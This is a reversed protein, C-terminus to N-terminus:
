IASRALCSDLKRILSPTLQYAQCVLENVEIEVQERQNSDLSPDLLEQALQSLQPIFSLFNNTVPFTQLDRNVIKPFLKRQSKRGRFALVFSALPSHLIALLALLSAESTDENPLIHLVSKNYLYVENTFTGVLVHPTPRTIERLLIRPGSFRSLKQPEALWKGHRLYSGSWTLSYRGVDKGQLYPYYEESLKESSHFTHQKVDEKSQPPTGKGAAYAQLAIMPRFGFHTLPQSHEQIHAFLTSVEPTWHTPILCEPDNTCLSYKLTQHQECSKWSPSSSRTLSFSDKKHSARSAFVIVAEVQPDEFLATEFIVLHELYKNECLLRRLKEGSRIGLWANPILFALHGNEHLLGLSRALFLIYKNVKGVRISDYNEKLWSNEFPSLQEGRSLGYPPNGLVLDFGSKTILQQPFAHKWRFAQHQALPTSWPHNTWDLLSDGCRINQALSLSRPPSLRHARAWERLELRLCRKTLEVAQPDRDTGFICTSLLHEGEETTKPSYIRFLERLATVLFIGAGCSPDLVTPPTDTDQRKSLCEQVMSHAINEPTYFVGTKKRARTSLSRKYTRGLLEAHSLSPSTGKMRRDYSTSYEHTDTHC